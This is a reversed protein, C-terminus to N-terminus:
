NTIKKRGVQLWDDGTKRSRLRMEQLGGAELTGATFMALLVWSSCSSRLSPVGFSGVQGEGTGGAFASSLTPSAVPEAVSAIALDRTSTSRHFGPDAPIAAFVCCSWCNWDSGATRNLDVMSSIPGFSAADVPRGIASPPARPSGPCTVGSSIRLRESRSLAQGSCSRLSFM